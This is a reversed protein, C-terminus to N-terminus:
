TVVEFLGLRRKILVAYINDLRNADVRACECVSSGVIEGRAPFSLEVARKPVRPACHSLGDFYTSFCMPFNYLDVHIGGGGPPIKETFKHPYVEETPVRSQSILKAGNGAQKRLHMYPLSTKSLDGFLDSHGM